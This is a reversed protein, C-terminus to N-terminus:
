RILQFEPLMVVAWLFDEVGDEKLEVGVVEKATSLEAKSPPRSLAAEYVRNILVEARLDPEVSM